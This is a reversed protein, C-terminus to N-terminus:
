IKLRLIYVNVNETPIFYNRFKIGLITKPEPFFKIIEYYNKLKQILSSDEPQNTLVLYEPLKSVIQDNIQNEDTPFNILKYKLFKIAPFHGPLAWGRPIGISSGQPINENIWKGAFTLNGKQVFLAMCFITQSVLLLFILILYFTILIRIIKNKSLLESIGISTYVNLFLFTSTFVGTHKMFFASFIFFGITIIIFFYSELKKAKYLFIIGLFTLPLFIWFNSFDFVQKIFKFGDVLNFKGYGYGVRNHLIASNYFRHFNYVVYPTLILYIIVSLFTYLLIKKILSSKSANKDNILILIPLMLIFFGNSLLSATSLGLCISIALYDNLKKEKIAKICLYLALLMWFMGFTHPKVQHSYTILLSNLSCLIMAIIGTLKNWLASTILYVLIICCLASIGSFIRSMVYIREIQEPHSFYYSVDTTINVLKLINSLMLWAGLSYYYFAGHTYNTKPDFDLKKPNMNSIAKIVQQEDSLVLGLFYGRSFDLITEESLIEFSSHMHPSFYKIFTNHDIKTRLNAFAMSKNYFKDRLELMKPMMEKIQGVNDLVQLSREWNPTGHNTGLFHIIASIILIVVLTTINISKNKM